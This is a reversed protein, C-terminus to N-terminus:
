PNVSELGWWRYFISVPPVSLAERSALAVSGKFPSDERNLNFQIGFSFISHPHYPFMVGFRDTQEEECVIEWKRFYKSPDLSQLLRIYSKNRKAFFFLYASSILV